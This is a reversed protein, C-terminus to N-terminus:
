CFHSSEIKRSNLITIKRKTEHNIPYRGNEVCQSESFCKKLIRYDLPGTRYMGSFLQMNRIGCIHM